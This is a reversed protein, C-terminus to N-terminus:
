CNSAYRLMLIQACIAMGHQYYLIASYLDEFSGDRPSQTLIDNLIKQMGQANLPYRLFAREQLYAM